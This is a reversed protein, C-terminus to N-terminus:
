WGIMPAGATPRAVCRTSRPAWWPKSSRRSCRACCILNPVSLTSPCFLAPDISINATMAKIEELNVNSQRRFSWAIGGWTVAGRGYRAGDYVVETSEVRPCAWNAM